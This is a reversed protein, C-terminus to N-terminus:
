CATQTFIITLTELFFRRIRQENTATEADPQLDKLAVEYTKAIINALGLRVPKGNEARSVTDESLGSKAALM